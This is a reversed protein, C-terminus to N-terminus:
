GTRQKTRGGKSVKYRLESLQDDNLLTLASRAKENSYGYYEKVVELDNLEVPKAWKSFRRKKRVTNILFDFQLRNDIHHHVNMENALMITDIFYSLSRNTMYGNYSNEALDDVMIDNKGYNIQNVYDFPNM